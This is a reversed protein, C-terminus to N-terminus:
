CHFVEEDTLGNRLSGKNESSIGIDENSLSVSPINGRSEGRAEREFDADSVVTVSKKIKVHSPLSDLHIVTGHEDLVHDRTFQRINLTALMSAAYLNSIVEYVAVFAINKVHQASILAIVTFDAISTLIGINVAWFILKNILKDTKTIGSRAHHLHYGLSLAIMLDTAAGLALSSTSLSEWSRSIDAYKDTGFVIGAVAVIWHNSLATAPNDQVYGMIGAMFAIAYRCPRNRSTCHRISRGAKQECATSSLVLMNGFGLVVYSYVAHCIFVAHAAELIWVCAVTYKMIVTDTPYHQYYYWTQLSNAGFLCVSFFAGILLAGLFSFLTGQLDPIEPPPPASM